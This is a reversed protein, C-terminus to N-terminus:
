QSVFTTISQGDLTVAARRHTLAIPGDDALNKSASTTFRSFGTACSNFLDLHISQPQASRNVAVVVVRNGGQCATVAVSRRTNCVLHQVTNHQLV